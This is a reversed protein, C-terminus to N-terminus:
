GSVATTITLPKAAVKGCTLRQGEPPQPLAWAGGGKKTGLSVGGEAGDSSIVDHRQSSAPAAESSKHTESANRECQSKNM